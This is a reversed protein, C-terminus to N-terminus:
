KNLDELIEELDENSIEVMIANNILVIYTNATSDKGEISIMDISINHGEVTLVLFDTYTGKVAKEKAKKFREKKMVGLKESIEEFTSALPNRKLIAM